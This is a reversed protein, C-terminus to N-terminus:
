ELHGMAITTVHEHAKSGRSWRYRLPAGSPDVIVLVEGTGLGSAGSAARSDSTGHRVHTSDWIPVVIEDARKSDRHPAERVIMVHGTNKTKVDAPKLWALIDGPQLDLMHPVRRWHGTGASSLSSSFFTVFHKALPRKVTAQRLEAFAEPAVNSLSYDVFGSCDYVFRGSAEDISTHHEYSSTRMAALQRSAEAAMAPAGRSAPKPRAAAAVPLDPEDGEDGNEGTEDQGDEVASIPETEMPHPESAKTCGCLLVLFLFPPTRGLRTM